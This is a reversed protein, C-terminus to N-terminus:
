GAGVPPARLRDALEGFGGAEALDAATMGRKDQITLDAGRALLMAAISARGSAAAWHLPTRKHLVDRGHMLAPDGDLLVELRGDYGRGAATQADIPGAAKDAGGHHLLLDAMASDGAAEAENWPTWPRSHASSRANALAGCRLLLEAEKLRGAGAAAHLPTGGCQSLANPNAGHDLLLRAVELHGARAAEHLPTDGAENMPSPKAGHDLLARVSELHGSRAAAHLPTSGGYDKTNPAASARLLLEVVEAHGEAAARHLPTIKGDQRRTVRYPDAALIARVADLDGAHAAEHLDTM